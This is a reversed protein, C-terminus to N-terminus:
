PGEKVKFARQLPKYGKYTKAERLRMEFPSRGGEVKPPTKPAKKAELAAAIKLHREEKQRAKLASDRAKEIVDKGSGDVFCLFVVEEEEGVDSVVQPSVVEESLQLSEGGKDVFVERRRCERKKRLMRQEWMKKLKM